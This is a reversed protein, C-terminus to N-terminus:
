IGTDEYAAMDRISIRDLEAGNVYTSMAHIRPNWRNGAELYHSATDEGGNEAAQEAREYFAELAASFAQREALPFGKFSHERWPPRTADLEFDLQRATAVFSNRDASHLWGCGLDFTIDPTLQVTHARGGIRGRAELVMSSLGSHQLAHAAGLGAAGAGIIAIDISSPLSM